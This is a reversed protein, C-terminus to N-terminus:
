RTYDVRLMVRTVALNQRSLWPADLWRVEPSAAIGHGLRIRLGAGLDPGFGRDRTDFESLTAHSGRAQTISHLSRSWLVGLGAVLYPRVRARNFRYQVTMSTVATAFPGYRASGVCPVNVGCPAPHPQLGFVREAAGEFTWGSVHAIAISAGAAPPDGFTQDDWRFVHGLGV